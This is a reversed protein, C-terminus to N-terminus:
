IVGVPRVEHSVFVAAATSNCLCVVRKCLLPRHLLNNEAVGLHFFM